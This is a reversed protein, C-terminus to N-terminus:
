RAIIPLLVQFLAVAEDYGIDFGTSLPRADGDYDTYVGVGVGTNLAASGAQLHYDDGPANAFRPSGLVTHSGGSVLGFTLTTNGYFLNYDRAVTGKQRHLGISHSTVITNQLNVSGSGNVLIAEGGTLSPAAVTAFRVQLTTTPALYIQQGAGLASNLAFLTNAISGGAAAQLGGGNSAYNGM